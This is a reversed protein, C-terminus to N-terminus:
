IDKWDEPYDESDDHECKDRQTACAYCENSKCHEEFAEQEENSMQYTNSFVAGRKCDSCYGLTSDKDEFVETIPQSNCCNSFFEM